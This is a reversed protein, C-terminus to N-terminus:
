WIMEVGDPAHWRSIGVVRASPLPDLRLKSLPPKSGTAGFTSDGIPPLVIAATSNPLRLEPFVGDFLFVVELVVKIVDMVIWYFMAVDVARSIPWPRAKMTPNFGTHIGLTPRTSISIFNRTEISDFIRTTLLPYVELCHCSISLCRGTPVPGVNNWEVQRLM